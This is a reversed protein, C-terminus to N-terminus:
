VIDSKMINNGEFNAKPKNACQHFLSHMMCHISLLAALNTEKSHLNGHVKDNRHPKILKM